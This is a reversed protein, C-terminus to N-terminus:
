VKEKEKLHAISWVIQDLFSSKDDADGIRGAAEIADSFLASAKEEDGIKAHFEAISSLADVKQRANNIRGVFQLALQSDGAYAFAQAIAASTESDSRRSAYNRLERKILYTQWANGRWIRWGIWVIVPLLLALGAIAYKKM